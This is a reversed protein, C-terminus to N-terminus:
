GMVTEKVGDGEVGDYITNTEAKVGDCITNTEQRLGMM